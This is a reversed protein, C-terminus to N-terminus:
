KSVARNTSASQTDIIVTASAGLRFPHKPDQELMRIRVPIRQTVKVWNGTTNQPPLLSFSAAAGRSLSEVRGKFKRDGYIDVTVSADMGPEILAVDTEKFNAEVWWNTSEVFPFLQEEPKVVDGARLTMQTVYGDAPAAIRTWELNLKALAVDAQASEIRAQRVKESGQIILAEDLAAKAEAVRGKAETVANVYHITDLEAAAGSKVMKRFREAYQEATQLQAQQESLRAKAAEVRASDSDVKHRILLLQNEAKIVEQQYPRPDIEFLPEGAKVFQNPEVFLGSVQGNLQPSIWVYHAHLYADETSPHVDEYTWLKYFGISLIGALVLVGVLIATQKQHSLPAKDDSM